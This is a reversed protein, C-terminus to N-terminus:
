GHVSTRDWATSSIDASAHQFVDASPCAALTTIETSSQHAETPWDSVCPSCSREPSTAGQIADNSPTRTANGNDLRSTVYAHVLM